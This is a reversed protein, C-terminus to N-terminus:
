INFNLFISNSVFISLIWRYILVRISHGYFKL